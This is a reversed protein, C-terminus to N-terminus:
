QHNIYMELPDSLLAEGCYAYSVGRNCATKQSFVGIGDKHGIHIIGAQALIVHVLELMSLNGQAVYYQPDSPKDVKGALYPRVSQNADGLGDMTAHTNM